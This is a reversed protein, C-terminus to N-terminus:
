SKIKTNLVFYECSTEKTDEQFPYFLKSMKGCFAYLKSNNIIALYRCNACCEKKKGAKLIVEAKKLMKEIKRQTDVSHKDLEKDYM